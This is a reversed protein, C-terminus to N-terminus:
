INNLPNRLPEGRLARLVEQAGGTFLARAAEISSSASHPTVIVRPHKVLPHDAGAPEQVFVDLGAGRLAGRDLAALLADEDVLGGRATNILFASPKMLAFAQANMIRQTDSNLPMHLTVYDSERLLHEFSAPECGTDCIVQAPVVPDHALVRMGLGRAKLAAERGIRGFGIVGTTSESLRKIPAVGVMGWNGAKVNANQVTIGRMCAMLLAIAHASVEDMGYDPQYAVRIKRQTAAPVDITDYGVGLRSVIKLNPMRDMLTGDVRQLTVIIAQAEPMAAIASPHSFDPTHVVRFGAPELIDREIRGEAGHTVIVTASM